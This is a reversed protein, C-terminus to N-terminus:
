VNVRTTLVENMREPLVTVSSVSGLRCLSASYARATCQYFYGVETALGIDLCDAM